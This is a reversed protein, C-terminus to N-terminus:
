ICVCTLTPGHNRRKDRAQIHIHLVRGSSASVRGFEREERGGERVLGLRGTERPLACLLECERGDLRAPLASPATQASKRNLSEISSTIPSLGYGNDQGLTVPAGPSGSGRSGTLGVM